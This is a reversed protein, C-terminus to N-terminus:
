PSPTFPVADEAQVTAMRKAGPRLGDFRGKGITRHYQLVDRHGDLWAQGAALDPALAELEAAWGPVEKWSESAPTVVVMAGTMSLGPAVCRRQAGRLSYVARPGGNDWEGFAMRIYYTRGPSLLARLVAVTGPAVAGAAQEQDENWGVVTYEGAPLVARLQTGSSINGVFRGDTTALTYYGGPDCSTVPWLFLLTAQNPDAMASPSPARTFPPRYFACAVVMGALFALLAFPLGGRM